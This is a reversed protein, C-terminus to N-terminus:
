VNTRRWRHTMPLARRADINWGRLTLRCRLVDSPL